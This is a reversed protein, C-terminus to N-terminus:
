SANVELVVQSPGGPGKFFAAEGSFTLLIFAAVAISRSLM